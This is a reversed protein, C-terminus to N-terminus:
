RLEVPKAVPPSSLPEDDGGSVEGFEEGLSVDEPHIDLM